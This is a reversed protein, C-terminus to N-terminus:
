RKKFEVTNLWPLANDVIHVVDAISNTKSANAYEAIGETILALPASAKTIGYTLNVDTRTIFDRGAKIRGSHLESLKIESFKANETYYKKKEDKKANSALRNYLKAHRSLVRDARRTMRKQMKPDNSVDSYRKKGAETLTGDANQFRRVGWKMGLIGHHYLEDSNKYYVM